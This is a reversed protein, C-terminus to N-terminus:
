SPNGQGEFQWDRVPDRNTFPATVARWLLKHPPLWNLHARDRDNTLLQRALWPAITEPTDTAISLFFREAASLDDSVTKRLLDTTLMGPSIESINVPTDKTERQLGRTLYRVAYKSTGYPINGHMHQGGSGYGRVNYIHGGGQALMGALAVASGHTTGTINAAFVSAVDDPTQEWLPHLETSLAANNVWIDVRGFAAVAADWLAEVQAADAVDCPVGCLRAPNHSRTLREVAREVSNNTRGCLAVNCGVALLANALAFGLGRTGGTIVITRHHKM